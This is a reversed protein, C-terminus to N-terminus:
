LSTLTMGFTIKMEEVIGKSLQRYCYMKSTQKELNGMPWLVPIHM